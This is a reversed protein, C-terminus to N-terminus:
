PLAEPSFSLLARADTGPTRLTTEPVLPSQGRSLYPADTESRRFTRRGLAKNPTLIKGPIFRQWGDSRIPFFVNSPLFASQPNRFLPLQRDSIRFPSRQRSKLLGQFGLV